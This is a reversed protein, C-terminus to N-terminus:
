KIDEIRFRLVQFSKHKGKYNMLGSNGHRFTVKLHWFVWFQIEAEEDIPGQHLVCTGAHPYLQAFPLLLCRWCPETSLSWTHCVLPQDPSEQERLVPSQCACGVPVLHVPLIEMIITQFEQQSASYNRWVIQGLNQYFLITNWGWLKSM